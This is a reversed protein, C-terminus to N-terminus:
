EGIRAGGLSRPLVFPGGAFLFALGAEGAGQGCHGVLEFRLPLLCALLHQRLLFFDRQCQTGRRVLEDGGGLALRFRGNGFDGAQHLGGGFRGLGGGLDEALQAVFERGAHRAVVAQEFLAAADHLRQTRQEVGDVVGRGFLAAGDVREDGGGSLQEFTDAALEGGLNFAFGAFEDFDAGADGAACVFHSAQAFGEPSRDRQEGLRVLLHHGCQM